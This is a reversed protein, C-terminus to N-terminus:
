EFRSNPIKILLNKKQENRFYSEILEIMKILTEFHYVKDYSLFKHSLGIKM